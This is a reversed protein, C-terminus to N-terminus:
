GSAGARVTAARLAPRLDSALVQEVLRPYTVELPAAEDYWPQAKLWELWDSQQPRPDRIDWGQEHCYGVRAIQQVLDRVLPIGSKVSAGAGLFFVPRPKTDDILVSKLRSVKVSQVGSM